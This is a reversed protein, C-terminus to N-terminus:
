NEFDIEPAVHDGSRRKREQDLVHKLGRDYQAWCLVGSIIAGFLLMVGVCAYMLFPIKARNFNSSDNSRNFAEWTRYVVFGILGTYGAIFLSTVTRNEFRVGLYGILPFVTGIVALAVPIMIKGAESTPTLVVNIITFGLVFFLSFKLFLLFIHYFVFAKDMAKDGGTIKFIRWGFDSNTRFTLYAFTPLFIGLVCPLVIQSALFWAPFGPGGLLDNDKRLQIIQLLSYIFLGLNHFNVSIVQIINSNMIGDWTMLLCFVMAAIFVSHYTISVKYSFEIVQEKFMALELFGPAMRLSSMDQLIQSKVGTEAAMVWGENAIALLMVLATIALTRQSWRVVISGKSQPILSAVVRRGLTRTFSDSRRGYEDSLPSNVTDPSGVSIYKTEQM